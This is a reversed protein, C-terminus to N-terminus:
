RGKKERQKRPQRAKRKAEDAARRVPEVVRPSLDIDAPSLVNNRLSWHRLGVTIAVAVLVALPKSLRMGVALLYYALAGAIACMAYLNGRRFVQPVEGLFVDRLMGGGIGTLAGMLVAAFFSLDYVIAKDCGSAAFLGVAVIDVWNILGPIRRFLGNFFYAILGTAVAAPIAYASKLMYVDGVQMTMDRILGGGLGCILALGVAGIMDLKRDSATIAGSLSGVVVAMLDLWVPISLSAAQPALTSFLTNVIAKRPFRREPPYYARQLRWTTVRFSMRRGIVLTGRLAGSEEAAVAAHLNETRM